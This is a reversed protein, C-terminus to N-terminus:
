PVREVGPTIIGINDVGAKRGGDLVPFIAGFDLNKDGKVFMVRDNRAQFIGSLKPELESLQVADEKIRYAAGGNGDPMVQVVVTRPNPEEGPGKPPQPALAELGRQLNPQIVMFIILMVLLVDILPTVNIASRTGKSQGSAMGM